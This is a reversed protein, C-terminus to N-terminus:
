AGPSARPRRDARDALGAQLGVVDHAEQLWGRLEDDLDTRAQVSLYHGRWRPGYDVRKVIRPSDLWRHLAFSAQFGRKRPSLGAFRVRAVCVLRTKQSIVQVDGLSHLMVVYARALELVGPAAGAFLTELTYQGCSHWLNRSVLRAGCKPCIWVPRLAPSSDPPEMSDLGQPHAVNVTAVVVVRVLTSRWLSPGLVGLAVLPLSVVDFRGRWV